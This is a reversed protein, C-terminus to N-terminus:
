SGAMKVYLSIRTYMGEMSLAMLAACAAEVLGHNGVHQTLAKLVDIVGGLETVLRVNDESVDHLMCCLRM